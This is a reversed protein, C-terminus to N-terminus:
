QIAKASEAPTLDILGVRRTLEPRLKAELKAANLVLEFAKLQIDRNKAIVRAKSENLTGDKLANIEEEVSQMLDNVTRVGHHRQTSKKAQKM